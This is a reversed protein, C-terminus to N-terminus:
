EKEKPATGKLLRTVAVNLEAEDKLAQSLNEALESMVVRISIALELCEEDTQAHLGESLAGHLLTLPNHGNILLVQPIGHKISAVAKSFQTEERAARLDELVERPATLKESVKGDTKRYM